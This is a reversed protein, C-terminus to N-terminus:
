VVGVAEETLQAGSRFAVRLCAAVLGVTLLTLPIHPPNLGISVGAQSDHWNLLATITALDLLPRLVAGGVLVASITRLSRVVDPHFPEGEGIRAVASRTLWLAVSASGATTAIALASLLRIWVPIVTVELRPNEALELQGVLPLATPPIWSDSGFASFWTFGTLISIARFVAWAIVLCALIALWPRVLADPRRRPPTAPQHM